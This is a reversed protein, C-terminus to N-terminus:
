DFHVNILPLLRFPPPNNRARNLLGIQVGKLEDATNFLGISLGTQRGRIENYAGISVGTMASTKIRAVSAALGKMDRAEVKYGGVAFGRL